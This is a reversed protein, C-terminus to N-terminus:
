HTCRNLAEQRSWRLSSLYGEGDHGPKVRDDTTVRRESLQGVPHDAMVFPDWNSLPPAM